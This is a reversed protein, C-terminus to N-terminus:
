VGVLYLTEVTKGTMRCTRTQGVKVRGSSQLEAVRGCVANISIGTATSIESRTLAEGSLAYQVQQAQTLAVGSQILERLAKISTPKTM